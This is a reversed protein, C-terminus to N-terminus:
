PQILVEMASSYVGRRLDVEVWINPPHLLLYMDMMSRLPREKELTFAKSDLHRGIGMHLSLLRSNLHLIIHPIGELSPKNVLIVSYPCFPTVSFFM